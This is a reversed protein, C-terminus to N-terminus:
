QVGDNLTRPKSPSNPKTDWLPCGFTKAYDVSIEGRCVYSEITQRGISDGEHARSPTIGGTFVRSGNPDFLIVQGSTNAGFRSAEVGDRDVIREAGPIQEALDVIPSELWDAEADAPQYMLIKIALQDQCQSQIRALENLTALSCACRPHLFVLLNCRTSDRSIDTSNPWRSVIEPHPKTDHQYILMALFGAGVLAIWVAFMATLITRKSTTFTTNRFGAHQIHSNSEM